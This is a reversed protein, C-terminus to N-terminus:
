PRKEEHLDPYETLIADHLFVGALDYDWLETADPEPVNMVFPLEDERLRFKNGQMLEPMMQRASLTRQPRRPNTIVIHAGKFEMKFGRAEPPLRSSEGIYDWGKVKMDAVFTEAAAYKAQDLARESPYAGIEFRCHLLYPKKGLDPRNGLSGAAHIIFGPSTM